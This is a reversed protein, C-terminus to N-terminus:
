CPVTWYLVTVPLYSITREAKSHAPSDRPGNQPPPRLKAGCTALRHRSRAGESQTGFSERQQAIVDVDVNGMLDHLAVPRLSQALAPSARPDLYMIWLPRRLSTTLAQLPGFSM